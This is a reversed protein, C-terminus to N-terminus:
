SKAKTSEFATKAANYESALIEQMCPALKAGTAAYIAGGHQFMAFGCFLLSGWDAGMATLVPELNAREAPFRASWDALLEAMAAKQGKGAGSVATRPRQIGARQADPKTWLPDDKAPSFRLGAVSCGHLDSGLLLTGGFHAAFENGIRNVNALEADYTALAALATADSTKYFAASV